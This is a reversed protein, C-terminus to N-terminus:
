DDDDDDDRRREVGRTTRARARRERADANL